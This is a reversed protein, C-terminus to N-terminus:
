IRRIDYKRSLYYKSFATQTLSNIQLTNFIYDPIFEDYKVELLSVGLGLVSRREYDGRLFRGVDNSSTINNDFTIRVNGLKYVFPIRDYSVIVKPKLAESQQKEYFRKLVVNANSDIKLLQQGLIKDVDSKTISCSSKLTKGHEKRKCELSIHECSNNYIRIRYKERPDTGNENEFFCRNDITDFYLSSISYMGTAQANKDLSMIGAARQLLIVREYESIPYKFEHRYRPEEIPRM